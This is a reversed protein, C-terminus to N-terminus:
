PRPSPPAIGKSSDREGREWGGRKRRRGCKICEDREEGRDREMEGGSACPIRSPTSSFESPTLPPGMTPRPHSSSSAASSAASSPGTGKESRRGGTRRVKRMEDTRTPGEEDEEDDEDDDGRRRRGGGVGQKGSAGGTKGGDTREPNEPFDEPSRPSNSPGLTSEPPARPTRRARLARPHGPPPGPTPETLLELSAGDIIIKRARECFLKRCPKMPIITRLGPTGGGLGGGLAGLRGPTGVPSRRKRGEEPEGGGDGSLSALALNRRGPPRRRRPAAEKGGGTESGAKGAGREGM